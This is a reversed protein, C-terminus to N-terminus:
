DPQVATPNLARRVEGARSAGDVPHYDLMRAMDGTLRAPVDGLGGPRSQAMAMGCAAVAAFAAIVAILFKRM